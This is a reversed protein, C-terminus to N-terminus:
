LFLLLILSMISILLYNSNCDFKKIDFDSSEFTKEINKIYDKINNYDDQTISQCYEATEKKGNENKGKVKVYCCKYFGPHIKLNNCDKKGSVGEEKSDCYVAGSDDDCSYQSILLVALLLFLTQKM